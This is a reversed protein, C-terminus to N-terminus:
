GAPDALGVKLDCAPPFRRFPSGAECGAQRRNSGPHLSNQQDVSFVRSSKPEAISRASLAPGKDMMQGGFVTHITHHNEGAIPLGLYDIQRTLDTDCLSEESLARFLFDGYDLLFRLKRGSHKQAVADVIGRRHLRCSNANGETLVAVDRGFRSM